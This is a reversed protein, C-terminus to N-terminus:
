ETKGQPTDMYGLPSPNLTISEKFPPCPPPTPTHSPTNMDVVCHTDLGSANAVSPTHDDSSPIPSFTDTLTDYRMQTLTPTDKDWYIITYTLTMVKYHKTLPQTHHPTKHIPTTRNPPPTLGRGTM